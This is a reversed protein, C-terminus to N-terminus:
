IVESREELMWRFDKQYFESGWSKLDSELMFMGGMCMHNGKKLYDAVALQLSTSVKVKSLDTNKTGFLNEFTQIEDSLVPYLYFERQFRYINSTKPLILQMQPDLLWSECVFGRCEQYEFYIKYFASASAFAKRCEENDLKTGGPIHIDLAVDGKSLVRKWESKLLKVVKNLAGGSPLVPNGCIYNENEEYVAEFTNETNFLGNTGIVKGDSMYITNPESIACVSGNKINRYVILNSEFYKPYFNLRGIRFIRGYFFHTLWKFDDIGWFGYKSKYSYMFDKLTGLTDILIKNNIGKAKYYNITGHIGSILILVPLLNAQERLMKNLRIPCIIRTEDYQESHYVRLHCYEVFKRLEENAYIKNVLELIDKIAEKPLQLYYNARSIFKLNLFETNEDWFFGELSKEPVYDEVIKIVKLTDYFNKLIEIYQNNETFTKM